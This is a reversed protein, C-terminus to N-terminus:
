LVLVQTRFWSASVLWSCIYLDYMLFLGIKADPKTKYM